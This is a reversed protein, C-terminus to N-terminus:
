RYHHCISHTGGIILTRGTADGGNERWANKAAMIEDNLIGGVVFLVFCDCDSPKRSNAVTSSVKDLVNGALRGLGSGFGKVFGGATAATSALLSGISGSATIREADKCCGSNDNASAVRSTIDSVLSTFAGDNEILSGHSHKLPITVNNVGDISISSPNNSRSSIVRSSTILEYTSTFLAKERIFDDLFLRVDDPLEVRTSKQPPKKNTSIDDDVSWGDDDSWGDTEEEENNNDIIDVPPTNQKCHDRAESIANYLEEGLFIFNEETKESSDNDAWVCECIACKLAEEIAKLDERTFIEKKSNNNIDNNDDYDRRKLMDDAASSFIRAAAEGALTMGCTVYAFAKACSVGSCVQKRKGTLASIIEAAVGSPGFAYATGALTRINGIKDSTTEEELALAAACVTALRLTWRHHHHHHSNNNTNELCNTIADRLAILRASTIDNNSNKYMEKKDANALVSEVNVGEVRAAESLLRSVKRCADRFSMRSLEEELARHATENNDNNSINKDDDQYEADLSSFLESTTASVEDMRGYFSDTFVTSASALDLARDVLMVCCTKKSRRFKEDISKFANDGLIALPDFENDENPIKQDKRDLCDRAIKKAIPGLAYFDVRDEDHFGLSHTVFADLQSGIISLKQQVTFTQNNSKNNNNNNNNNNNGKTEKIAKFNFDYDLLSSSSSSEGGSAASYKPFIFANPGLPEVITGPFFQIVVKQLSKNMVTTKLENADKEKQKDEWDDDGWDEDWDDEEKDNKKQEQKEDGNDDEGEEKKNNNITNITNITSVTDSSDDDNVLMDMIARECDSKCALVAERVDMASAAEAERAISVFVTVTKARRHRREVLDLIRRGSYALTRSIFFVVAADAKARAGDRVNRAFSDDDDSVDSDEAELDLVTQCNTVRLFKRFGVTGKIAKAAGRDCYVVSQEDYDDDDVDDDFRDRNRFRRLVNEVFFFEQVNKEERIDFERIREHKALVAKKTGGRGESLGNTGNMTELVRLSPKPLTRLALATVLV